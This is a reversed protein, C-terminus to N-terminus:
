SVAHWRTEMGTMGICGVAIGVSGRRHGPPAILVQRPANDHGADPRDGRDASARASEPVANNLGSRYDARDVAEVGRDETGAQGGVDIFEIWGGIQIGALEPTEVPERLERDRCRALR